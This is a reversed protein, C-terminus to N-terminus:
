PMSRITCCPAGGSLLGVEILMRVWVMVSARVMAMTM